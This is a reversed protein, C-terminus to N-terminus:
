SGRSSLAGPGNWVARSAQTISTRPAPGTVSRPRFTMTSAAVPVTASEKSVIAFAL